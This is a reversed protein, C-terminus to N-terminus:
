TISTSELSSHRLKIAQLLGFRPAIHRTCLMQQRTGGMKTPVWGPELANSVEQGVDHSVLPSSCTM